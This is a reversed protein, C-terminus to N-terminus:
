LSKTKQECTQTSSLYGSIRGKRGQEKLILMPNKTEDTKGDILIQRLGGNEHLSRLENKFSDEVEKDSDTNDSDCDRVTTRIDRFYRPCEVGDDSDKDQSDVDINQKDGDKDHRDVDTNKINFHVSTEETSQYHQNESSFTIVLNPGISQRVDINLTRGHENIIEINKSYANTTALVM